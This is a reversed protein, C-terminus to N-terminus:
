KELGEDGVPDDYFPRDDAAEQPQQYRQVERARPVNSSCNSRDSTTSQQSVQARASAREDQEKGPQVYIDWTPVGDATPEGRFGIIRAKGLFRSLYETGRESTRQWLITLLVKDGFNSGSM